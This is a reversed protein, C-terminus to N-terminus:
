KEEQKLQLIEILRDSLIKHGEDKFHMYDIWDGNALGWFEEPVINDLDYVEHIAVVDRKFNLYEDMVYPIEIDQRIPAIYFIPKINNKYCFSVIDKMAKLNNIYIRDIKKRKSSPKIGIVWNRFYYLEGYFYSRINGRNNYSEFYNSFIDNIKNEFVDKLLENTETNELIVSDMSEKIMKKGSTYENLNKINYNIMYAMNQRVGDERTDDFVLSFFAIKLKEKLKKEANVLSLFMEQLNGNSASLNILIKNDNKMNKNMYYVFLHDSQNNYDNISHSQSNGFLIVVNKYQENILEIDSNNIDYNTFNINMDNNKEFVTKTFNGLAFDEFNSKETKYNFFCLVLFSSILSSFIIFLLVKKDIM